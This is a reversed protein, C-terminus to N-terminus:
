RLNLLELYRDRLLTHRSVMPMARGNIYVADPYSTVELPDGDWIVVDAVFGPQLQGVDDLGYIRATNATM